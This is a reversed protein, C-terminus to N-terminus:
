TAPAWVTMLIIGNKAWSADYFWGPGKIGIFNLVQHGAWLAPQLRPQWLISAAVAPFIVPFFVTRYLGIGQDGKTAAIRHWACSSSAPASVLALYLAHQHGGELVAPGQVDPRLQRSWVWRPM